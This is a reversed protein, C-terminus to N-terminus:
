IQLATTISSPVGKQKLTKLESPTVVLQEGTAEVHEQQLIKWREQWIESWKQEWLDLEASLTYRSHLDEVYM